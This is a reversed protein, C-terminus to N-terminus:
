EWNLPHSIVLKELHRAKNVLGIKKYLDILARFFADDQVSAIDDGFIDAVSWSFQILRKQSEGAFRQRLLSKTMAVIMSQCTKHLIDANEHRIAAAIVSHMCYTNIGDETRQLWGEESLKDLLVKNKLSFWKKVDELIFPVNPITSIKILLERKSTDTLHMTSFLMALQEIIRREKKMSQHEAAVLEEELMEGESNQFKLNFGCAVLTALFVQFPSKKGGDTDYFDQRRILKAFLEVTVTHCDALDIISKIIKEDDQSLVQNGVDFGDFYWKRFLELCPDLKLAEVKITQLREKSLGLSNPRGALIFQASPLNNCLARIDDDRTEINDIVILLRAGLEKMIDLCVSYEKKWDVRDIPADPHFAQYIKQKIDEEQNIGSEGQSSSLDIWFVDTIPNLMSSIPTNAIAKVAARVIETKGIGGIGQLYISKGRLVAECIDRVKDDRGTFYPSGNLKKEDFHQIPFKLEQPPRSSLSLANNLIAEISNWGQLPGIPDGGRAILERDVDARLVDLAPQISTVVSEGSIGVRKELYVKFIKLFIKLEERDPKGSTAYHTVSKTVKEYLELQRTGEATEMYFDKKEKKMSAVYNHMYTQLQRVTVHICEDTLKAFIVNFFTKRQAM